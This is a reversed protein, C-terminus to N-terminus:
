VQGFRVYSLEGNFLKIAGAEEAKKLNKVLDNFRYMSDLVASQAEAYDNVIYTAHQQPAELEPKLVSLNHEDVIAFWGHGHYELM